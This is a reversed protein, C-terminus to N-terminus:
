SYLFSTPRHFRRNSCFSSSLSIQEDQRTKQVHQDNESIRQNVINNEAKFIYINFRKSGTGRHKDSHLVVNIQKM